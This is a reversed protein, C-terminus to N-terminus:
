RAPASSATGSRTGEVASAVVAALQGLVMVGGIMPMTVFLGGVFLGWLGGWIAGNKGWFKVRDGANYFGVAKEEVHLGKGVISLKALDYGDKALTRVAAEADAHDQFVAIITNIQM